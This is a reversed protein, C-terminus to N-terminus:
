SKHSEMITQLIRVALKDGAQALLSIHKILDAPSVWSGTSYPQVSYRGTKADLTEVLVWGNKRAMETELPTLM